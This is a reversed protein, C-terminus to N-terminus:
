QKRTETTSQLSFDIGVGARSINRPGVRIGGHPFKQRQVREIWPMMAMRLGTGVVLLVRADNGQASSGAGMGSEVEQRLLSGKRVEGGM